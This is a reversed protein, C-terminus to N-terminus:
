HIRRRRELVVLVAGGFMLIAWTSPEPVAATLAYFSFGDTKFSYWDGDYNAYDPTFLTWETEGDALHWLTLPASINGIDYSLLAEGSALTTDFDFAMLVAQGNITSLTLETASFVITGAASNFGVMFLAEGDHEFEYRKGSVNENTISGTRTEHDVDVSTTNAVVLTSTGSDWSAGYAEITGTGSISGSTNGAAIPTYNGAALDPSTYLTVTGDNVFSGTGDAGAKLQNNGSVYVNVIGKDAGGHVKFDDNASATGSVNLVGLPKVDITKSGTAGSVNLVATQGAGGASTAKSFTNAGTLNVAGNSVHVGGFTNNGSITLIGTGAKTLEASGGIDNNWEDAANLGGASADMTITTDTDIAGFGGAADFLNIRDWDKYAPDLNDLPGGSPLATTRLVENQQAVSMYPFRTALLYHANEPVVMARDTPGLPTLGYTMRELYEARAPEEGAYTWLTPGTDATYGVALLAQLSTSAAQFIAMNDPNSLWNAIYYTSLTRGGMLDIPYHAGMVLRGNAFADARSMMQQYGEPMMMGFLIASSYAYTTHGSPFSAETEVSQNATTNTMAPGVPPGQQGATPIVFTPASFEVIQDPPHYQVVQFPRPDKASNPDPQGEPIYAKGYVDDHGNAPFNISYGHKDGHGFFDKAFSAGDEATGVAGLFLTTLPAVNPSSNYIAGFYASEFAPGLGDAISTAMNWDLQFDHMALAQLASSASNQVEVITSLNQALVAKGEDTSDLQSFPMLLFGADVESQAHVRSAMGLTAAAFLGIFGRRVFGSEFGAFTNV